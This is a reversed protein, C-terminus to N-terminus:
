DKESSLGVSEEAVKLCALLDDVTNRMTGASQADMRFVITSGHLESSVYGKNDPDLANMVAEAARSDPYTTELELTIMSETGGTGSITAICTGDVSDTM